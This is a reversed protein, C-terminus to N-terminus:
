PDDDDDDHEEPEDVLGDHDNDRGDRETEPRERDEDEPEAIADDGDPRGDDDDDRLLRQGRRLLDVLHDHESDGPHIEVDERDARLEDASLWRAAGLQWIVRLGDIMEVPSPAVLSLTGVDLEVTFTYGEVSAGSWVLPASPNLSVGCWTGAPLALASGGDLALDIDAAILRDEGDCGLMGVSAVMAAGQFSAIDEATPTNLRMRADLNGVATGSDLTDPACATLAAACAAIRALPPPARLPIM